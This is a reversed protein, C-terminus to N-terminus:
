QFPPLQPLTSFGASDGSTRWKGDAERRVLARIEVRQNRLGSRPGSGLSLPSKAVKRSAEGEKVIAWSRVRRQIKSWKM